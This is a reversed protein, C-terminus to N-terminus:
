SFSWVHATVPDFSYSSRNQPFGVEEKSLLDLELWCSGPPSPWCVVPDWPGGVTGRHTVTCITESAESSRQVNQTLQAQSMVIKGTEM